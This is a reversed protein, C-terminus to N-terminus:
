FRLGLGLTFINSEIEYVGNATRGSLRNEMESSTVHRDDGLVRAYAFDFRVKEWGYGAGATLELKRTDTGAPTMSADPIGNEDILAGVRLAWADKSYEAGVKYSLATRFPEAVLPEESDPLVEPATSGRNKLIFKEGSRDVVQVEAALLLRETPHLAAGVRWIEPLRLDLEERTFSITAPLGLGAQLQIPVHIDRTGDPSMAVGSLYSFGVDIMDSPTWLFGVNFGFGSGDGELTASGDYAPNEPQGLLYGFDLKTRIEGDFKVYDIGAGVAFHDNIRYAVAPTVYVFSFLSKTAWYRQPGSESWELDEAFPVAISVGFALKSGEKHYVGGAYPSLSSDNTTAQEPYGGPSLEDADRRFTIEDPHLFFLGGADASVGEHLDVLLAPNVLCATADAGTAAVAGGLGMGRAGYVPKWAVSAHLSPAALALAFLLSTRRHM